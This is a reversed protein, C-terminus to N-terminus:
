HGGLIPGFGKNALREGEAAGAAGAKAADKALQVVSSTGGTVGALRSFHDHGVLFFLGGLRATTEGSKPSFSLVRQRLRMSPYATQDLNRSLQGV